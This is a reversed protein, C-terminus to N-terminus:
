RGKAETIAPEASAGGPPFDLMDPTMARSERIAKSYDPWPARDTLNARMWDVLTTVQADSMAGAYGPMMPMTEGQSPPLGHLIVNILNRPSEGALGMSMSLPIGGFPAPRRGDHCDLCADQYLKAGEGANSNVALPNREIESARRRRAESVPGLLSATYAAIAQLDADSARALEATVLGMTGRSVGHRPHYGNKLYFALAESDWPIPAANGADIAYAHWGEAEGGAYANSLKEAFLANRPSHCSGCHGLGEVLYEGRAVQAGKSADTPRPGERLYLM